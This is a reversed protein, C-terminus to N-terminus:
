FDILTSQHSFKPTHTFKGLVNQNRSHLRTGRRLEGRCCQRTQLLDSSPRLLTKVDWLWFGLCLGNWSSMSIHLYVTVVSNNCIKSSCRQCSEIWCGFNCSSCGGPQMKGQHSIIADCNKQCFCFFFKWYCTLVPSPLDMIWTGETCGRGSGGGVRRFSDSGWVEAARDTDYSVRLRGKVRRYVKLSDRECTAESEPLCELSIFCRCHLTPVDWNFGGPRAGVEDQPHHVVHTRAAQAAAAECEAFVM